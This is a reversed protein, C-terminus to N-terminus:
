KPPATSEAMLSPTPVGAAGPWQAKAKPAKAGKPVAKRKPVSARLYRAYHYGFVAATLLEAAKARDPPPRDKHALM